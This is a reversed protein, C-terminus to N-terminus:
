SISTTLLGTDAIQIMAMKSRDMLGYSCIAGYAPYYLPFSASGHEQWLLQTTNMAMRAQVTAAMLCM